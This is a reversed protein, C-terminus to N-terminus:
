SKTRRDPERTALLPVPELGALEWRFGSLFRGTPLSANRRCSFLALWSSRPIRFTLVVNYHGADIAELLAIKADGFTLSLISHAHRGVPLFRRASFYQACPTPYMSTTLARRRVQLTLDFNKRLVQSSCTCVMGTPMTQEAGSTPPVRRPRGLLLESVFAAKWRRNGRRLLLPNRVESKSLLM